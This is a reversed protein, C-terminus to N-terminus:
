EDLIDGRSSIRARLMRGGESLLVVPTERFAYVHTGDASSVSSEWAPSLMSFPTRLITLGNYSYASTRTDVGSVSMRLAGPPIVGELISTLQPDGASINIGGQIIPSKAFPGVEPIVADFRYHVMDRSTDLVLIVPTQLGILKISMNGAAYESQPTVRIINAIEGATTEIIEFDGAWAIDEIPWPSGTSDLINITSIHGYSVKVSVPAVGPDLPINQVAIEPKPSPYIPLNVSEQTRDFRELLTRIEEPRLPLLGDLAADFAEKRTEEELEEPTKEFSFVDDDGGFALGPAPPLSDSPGIDASPDAIDLTPLQAAFPDTDQSFAPPATFAAILLVCLHSCSFHFPKKTMPM